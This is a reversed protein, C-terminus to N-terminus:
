PDWKNDRTVRSKAYASDKQPSEGVGTGEGLIPPSFTYPQRMSAGVIQRLLIIGNKVM